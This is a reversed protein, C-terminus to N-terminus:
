FNMYLFQYKVEMEGGSYDCLTFIIMLQLREKLILEKLQFRKFNTLLRSYELRIPWIVWIHEGNLVKMYSYRIETNTMDFGLIKRVKHILVCPVILVYINFIRECEASYMTCSVNPKGCRCREILIVSLYKRNFYCYWSSQDVGINKVKTWNSEFFCKQSPMVSIYYEDAKPLSWRCM